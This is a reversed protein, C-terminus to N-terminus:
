KLLHLFHLLIKMIIENKMADETFYNQNFKGKITLLAWQFFIWHAWRRHTLLRYAQRLNDKLFRRSFYNIFYLALQINRTKIKMKTKLIKQSQQTKLSKEIKQNRQNKSDNIAPWIIISTSPEVCRLTKTHIPYLFLRHSHGNNDVM